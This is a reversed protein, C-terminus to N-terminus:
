KKFFETKVEGISLLISHTKPIKNLLM